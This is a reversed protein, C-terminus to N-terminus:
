TTGSNKLIGRMLTDMALNPREYEIIDVANEMDQAIMLLTISSQPPLAENHSQFREEYIALAKRADELRGRFNDLDLRPPWPGQHKARIPTLEDIHQQVADALSSASAHLALQSERVSPEFTEGESRASWLHQRGILIASFADIDVTIAAIFGDLIEINKDVADPLTKAAVIKHSLDLLERAKALREVAKVREPSDFWAEPFQQRLQPFNAAAREAASLREELERLKQKQAEFRKDGGFRGFM